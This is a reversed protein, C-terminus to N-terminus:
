VVNNQKVEILYQDLWPFTLRWNLNRRSDIQDLYSELYNLQEINLVSSNLSLHIGNMYERVNNEWVTDTSMSDLIRDFDNDFYGNGFVDCHLWSKKEVHGFSHHIKRHKRFSNLYDILDPMTKITLSSITSNVNLYIWKQNVLYEFNEKLKILDLGYRVYEQESGLCDISVTIDLRGIQRNVLLQKMENVFTELKQKSLTLNTVINIELEPNTHKKIFEVLRAFSRQYFPEGGLIQLRKLTHYNKDLYLFLKEVLTDYDEHRDIKFQFPVDTIHGFKQNETQIFSSNSEDCYICGMNCANDLYIELIRPSVHVANADNELEIPNLGPIKQHTLRDSIGGEQEIIECYQCGQQPFNGALMMQRQQIWHDHNHFNDFTDVTLTIPIVRHCSSSAGNYLSITHWTWKLQCAVGTTIPFFKKKSM